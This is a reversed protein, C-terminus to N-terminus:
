LGSKFNIIRRVPFIIETMLKQRCEPIFVDFSYLVNMNCNINLTINMFLYMYDNTFM